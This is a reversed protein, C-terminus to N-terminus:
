FDEVGHPGEQPAVGPTTEPAQTLNLAIDKLEAPVKDSKAIKELDSFVNKGGIVAMAKLANARLHVDVKDNM